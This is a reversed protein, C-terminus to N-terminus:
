RKGLIYYHKSNHRRGDFYCDDVHRIKLITFEKFLEFIDDLSVCFHPVNNEATGDTKIVTNEDLRPFDAEKYAWTEKSCLTLYFEGDKKLVRRIEKLIIQIGKTDTHSIVHYAFLCDFSHDAYPLELMDAARVDIPLKERESWKKLNEVAEPSLDFATVDFGEKAFYVSHRGLGCGFDLIKHFDAQKWRSALYYSEESPTLWIPNNEKKWDWAKSISM